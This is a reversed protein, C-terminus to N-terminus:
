FRWWYQSKPLGGYNKAHRLEKHNYLVISKIKQSWFTTREQKTLRPKLWLCRNCVDLVLKPGPLFRYGHRSAVINSIHTNGWSRTVRKRCVVCCFQTGPAYESTLCTPCVDPYGELENRNPQILKFKKLITECSGTNGWGNDETDFCVVCAYPSYGM